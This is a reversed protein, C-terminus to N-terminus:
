PAKSAAAVTGETRIWPVHKELFAQFESFEGQSLEKKQLLMGKDGVVALLLDQTEVMCFFDQYPYVVEAGTDAHSLIMSEDTFVAFVEVNEPLEQRTRLLSLAMKEETRKKRRKRTVLAAIAVVVEGVGLPLLCGLEEWAGITGFCLISGALLSVSALVGRYDRWLAGSGAGLCIIGMVLVLWLEKPDTLAPILAFMGLAWNLLGWFIRRKRRKELVAASAKERQNLRDSLQWLKPCKQRSFWEVRKELAQEVQLQKEEGICPLLQFVFRGETM